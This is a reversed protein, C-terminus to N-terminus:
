PKENMFRSKGLKKWEKLIFQQINENIQLWGNATSNVLRAQCLSALVLGRTLQFDDTDILDFDKDFNIPFGCNLLYTDNVKLTTHCNFIQPCLKRFSVADFERDSSSISALIANKKFFKFHSPSLSTEGSCGIILDFKSLHKKLVRFDSNDHDVDYMSLEFKKTKKLDSYIQKGIVGNGLILVKQPKIKINLIKEMIKKYALQTIIPSEYQLKIWSRAMNVIPFFIHKNKLRNYGSSTQEIGIIKVDKKFKKNIKSLLHGGDDLVIIKEFKEFVVKEEIEKLFIELSNEFDKDYSIHSDFKLSLPSVKVGDEQLQAYVNPDTSYCKGIVYLNDPKLKLEFLAKFMVYTSSYLHQAAIILTNEFNLNVFKNKVFDVLPLKRDTLSSKPPLM